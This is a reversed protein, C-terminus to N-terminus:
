RGNKRRIGHRLNYRKRWGRFAIKVEISSNSMTRFDNFLGFM